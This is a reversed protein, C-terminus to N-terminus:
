LRLKKFPDNLMEDFLLALQPKEKLRSKRLLADALNKKHDDYFKLKLISDRLAAGLLANSYDRDFIIGNIKNHILIM